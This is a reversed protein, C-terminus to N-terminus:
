RRSTRSRRGDCGILRISSRRGSRQFGEGVVQNNNDRLGDTEGGLGGGRPSTGNCRTRQQSYHLRLTSPQSLVSVFLTVVTSGDGDSPLLHIGHPSGSSKIGVFSIWNGDPSWSPHRASRQISKGEGTLRVLNSGDANVRYLEDLGPDQKWSQFVIKSGDPSWSPYSQVEGEIPSTIPAIGIESLELIINRTIEAANVQIGPQRVSKGESWATVEYVGPKLDNIQFFGEADTGFVTSALEPSDGGLYVTAGEVPNLFSDRVYGSIAGPPPAVRVTREVTNNATDAEGPLPDITVRVTYDLPENDLPM